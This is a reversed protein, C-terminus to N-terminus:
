EETVVFYRLNYKESSNIISIVGVNSEISKMVDIRVNQGSKLDVGAYKYGRLTKTSIVEKTSIFVRYMSPSKAHISIFEEEVTISINLDSQKTNLQWQENQSDWFYLETISARYVSQAGCIFFSLILLLSLLIKKM